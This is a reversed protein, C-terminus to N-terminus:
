KKRIELGGEETKQFSTPFIDLRERLEEYVDLEM